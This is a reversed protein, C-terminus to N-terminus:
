ADIMNKLLENSTQLNIENNPNNIIEKIIKGELQTVGRSNRGAWHKLLLTGKVLREEFMSVLATKFTSEPNIGIFYFLFVSKSSALFELMKDINYAKPNSDLIMIKTKIDTETYFSEFERTYDGLSNATKFGLLGKQNNTLAHILEKKIKEDEGTIIYEIVRGRINVNEILSAILIVNHYKKVKEDLENKLVNYEDSKSFCIAREPANFIYKNAEETIQYEHGTGVIALTAEVLRVLNDEFGISEHILYLREFNNPKNEIGQFERNIDSGNFSGKINTLSLEHSSHSIKKLFTSNSLLLENENQRVVCVFFPKSDYKQLNSLALVTNSFSGSNAQSFRIAFVDCYYVSRDKTLNFKQAVLSALTAKNNIENHQTIFEILEYIIKHM